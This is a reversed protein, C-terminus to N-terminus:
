KNWYQTLHAEMFSGSKLLGPFILHSSFSLRRHLHHKGLYVLSGLAALMSVLQFSHWVRKLCNLFLSMLHIAGLCRFLCGQFAQKRLKWQMGITDLFIGNTSSCIM